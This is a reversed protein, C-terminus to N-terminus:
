QDPPERDAAAMGALPQARVNQRVRQAADGERRLADADPGHEDVGLIIRCPPKIHSARLKNLM